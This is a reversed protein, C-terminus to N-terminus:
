HHREACCIGSPTAALDATCQLVEEGSGLHPENIIITYNGAPINVIKFSLDFYCYCDCNGEVEIEDITITGNEIDINAEIVPYCNFWANLHTLMLINGPLYDYEVCTKVAEGADLNSTTTLDKCESMDILSGTPEGAARQSWPYHTRKVCFEGSVAQTLDVTFGLPEDCMETYPEIFEIHYEGPELNAIEYDLDFLCLCRCGSISEHETITIAQGVIDIDASITGPCCNFGANVHKLTLEGSGDYQYLVCDQDSPPKLGLGVWTSFDKCGSEAILMGVPNSQHNQNNNSGTPNEDACGSIFFM